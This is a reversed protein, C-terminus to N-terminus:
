NIYATNVVKITAVKERCLPCHFARPLHLITQICVACFCHKCNLQCFKDNERNEMCIACDDESVVFQEEMITINYNFSENVYTETLNSVLSYDPTRDIAWSVEFEEGGIDAECIFESM